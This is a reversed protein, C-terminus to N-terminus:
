CFCHSFFFILKKNKLILKSEFFENIAHKINSYRVQFDGKQREIFVDAKLWENGQNGGILFLQSEVHDQGSPIRLLIELNGM